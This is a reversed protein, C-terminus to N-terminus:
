RTPILIDTEAALYGVALYGVALYGLCMIALFMTLVETDNLNYELTGEVMTAIICAIGAHLLFRKDSRGPPL